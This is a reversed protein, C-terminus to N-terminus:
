RGSESYSLLPDSSTMDRSQGHYELLSKLYNTVLDKAFVMVTHTFPKADIDAWRRGFATEM